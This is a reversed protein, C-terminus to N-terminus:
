RAKLGFSNALALILMDASKLILVWEVKHSQIILGTSAVWFSLVTTVIAFVRFVWKAWDPTQATFDIVTKTDKRLVAKGNIIVKKM